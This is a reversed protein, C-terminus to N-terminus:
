VSCGGFGTWSGFGRSTGPFVGFPGLAGGLQGGVFCLSRVKCCQSGAAARGVVMGLVVHFCTFMFLHLHM